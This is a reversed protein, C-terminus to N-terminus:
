NTTIAFVTFNVTNSTGNANTVSVPYVGPPTLYQAVLCPPNGASCAYYRSTPVTFTLTTGNNTSNLSYSPNLETNLDGFKIKNGSSTFGSGTITVQAGVAASAPSLASIAPSQTVGSTITFPNNSSDCNTTAGAPCIRMLYQGAPIPKDAIDTAVIWHYIGGLGGAINKDLVYPPLFVPLPCLGANPGVLICSPVYHDLYLDVKGWDASPLCTSCLAINNAWKIDQVSNAVWTEGGNPSTVTIGSQNSDAPSVRISYAQSVTQTGNTVQVTFNYSGALSAFGFIATRTLNPADCPPMVIGPCTVIHPDGLELGRPLAGGSISWKLDDTSKFGVAMLQQRYFDDVNAVNPVLVRVEADPLITPTIFFRQQCGYLSDLKARTIPGVYGTGPHIVNNEEQWAIVAVKTLAGFYGTPTTIHLYGGQILFQQLASVEAGLSGITLNRTLVPACSPPLPTLAFVTQSFLVGFVLALIFFKKM